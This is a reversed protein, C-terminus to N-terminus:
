GRFFSLCRALKYLWLTWCAICLFCIFLLLLFHFLLRARHLSFFAADRRACSLCFARALRAAAQKLRCGARSRKRKRRSMKIQKRNIAQQVRQSYLNARHKDKKHTPEVRRSGANKSQGREQAYGRRARGKQDKRPQGGLPRRQQEAGTDM